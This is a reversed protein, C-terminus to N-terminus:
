DTQPDHCAAPQGARSALAAALADIEARFDTGTFVALRAHLASRREIVLQPCRVTFLDQLIDTAEKVARAQVLGLRAQVHAHRALAPHYLLSSLYWEATASVGLRNNASYRDSPFVGDRITTARDGVVGHEIRFGVRPLWASQRARKSWIHIEHHSAAARKATLQAVQNFLRALEEEHHPVSPVATASAKPQEAHPAALFENSLATGSACTAVGGILLLGLSGGCAERKPFFFHSM